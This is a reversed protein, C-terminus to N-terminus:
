NKILNEELYFQNMTFISDSPKEAAPPPELSVTNFGLYSDSLSFDLDANQIEISIDADYGIPIFYDYFRRILKSKKGNELFQDIKSAQIPGINFIITPTSEMFDGGVIMDDGCSFSGLSESSSHIMVKIPHYRDEVQWSVSEELFYELCIATLQFNGVIRHLFPIIRALRAQYLDTIDDGIMWFKKLEEFSNNNLLALLENEYLELAVRKQFIENEIPNFLLHAHNKQKRNFEHIENIKERSGEPSKLFLNEPLSNFLGDRSLKCVLKNERKEFHLVDYDWNKRHSSEFEVIINDPSIGQMILDGIVTEARMSPKSSTLQDVLRDNM